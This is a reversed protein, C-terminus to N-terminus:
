AIFDIMDFCINWVGGWASAYIDYSGLKNCINDVRPGKLSKTLMDALQDKSSVFETTIEGLLVKECM